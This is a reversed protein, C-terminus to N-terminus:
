TAAGDGAQARWLGTGPHPLCAPERPLAPQLSATETEFLNRWQEKLELTPTTKLAALRAPIPDPTTMCTEAQTRTAHGSQHPSFDVSSEGRDASLSSSKAAMMRILGAALIRCLEARREAPSMRDPHLPNPGM